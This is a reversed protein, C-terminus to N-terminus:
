RGARGSEATLDREVMEIAGLSPFRKSFDRIYEEKQGPTMDLSVGSPVAEQYSAQASPSGPTAGTPINNLHVPKKPAPPKAGTGPKPGVAPLPTVSRPASASATGSPIHSVPRTVVPKRPVEPARKEPRTAASAADSYVGYGHATRPVNAASKQEESLLSQVRNQISVARASGTVPRPPLTPAEKNSVRQRYAAAAAEVRREEEELRQRELERRMEPTEDDDVTDVLHGDDSRGDTAESGAIPTLRPREDHMPPSPSRDLPPQSGHPPHSVEFRKFADGFKGSLINKTGSLSSVSGRKMHKSSRDRKKEDEMSRLFDVNSEINTNDELVSEQSPQSKFGMSPIRQHTSPGQSKASERERLFDINSELHTSSPRQRDGLSRRPPSNALDLLDASPRGGELSPRSSSPHRMHVQSQLTPKQVAPVEETRSWSQPTSDPQLVGSVPRQQDSPPFRYAPVTERPTTMTGTSVYNSKTSIAHLEPNSAIISQARSMEAPRPPASAPKKGTYGPPPPTDQAQAQAPPTGSVAAQRDSASPVSASPVAFVEDALQQSVRHGADGNAPTGQSPTSPSDFDFGLGKNHLLDFQDLTPFRSSLEDATGSPQSSDLAAFPDGSVRQPSPTPKPQPTSTTAPLRGRRMPVVDPIAQKQPKEPSFVAGVVPTSQASSEGSSETRTRSKSHAESSYIQPIYTYWVNRSCPASRVDKIPVEQGQMACGERLVQYINPRSKQNERLM